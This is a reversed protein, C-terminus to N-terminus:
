PRERRLVLMVCEPKEQSRFATPLTADEVNVCLRLTDGDLEYIGPMTDKPDLEAAEGTALVLYESFRITRPTQTVDLKFRKEKNGDKGIETVKDGAFVFCMGEKLEEDSLPKGQAEGGVVKWRGQLKAADGEAPAAEVPAAKTGDKDSGSCGCLLGFVLSLSFLPRMM